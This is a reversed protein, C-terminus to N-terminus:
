KTFEMRPTPTRVGSLGIPFGSFSSRRLTGKQSLLIRVGMLLALAQQGAM